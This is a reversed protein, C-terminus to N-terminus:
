RRGVGGADLAHSPTTEVPELRLLEALEPEDARVEELFREADKREYVATIVRTVTFAM